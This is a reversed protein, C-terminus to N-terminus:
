AIMLIKDRIHPREAIIEIELTVDGDQLRTPATMALRSVRFM